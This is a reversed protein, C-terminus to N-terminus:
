YCSLYFSFFEGPNFINGNAEVIAYPIVGSSAVNTGKKHNKDKESRYKKIYRFEFQEDATEKFDVAKMSHLNEKGRRVEYFVLLLAAGWQLVRHLSSHLTTPIKSLYKITYNEDGRMELAEKVNWLLKYIKELTKAPIEEKHDTDTCGKEALKESNVLEGLGVDTDKNEEFYKVFNSDRKRDTLTQKTLGGGEQLNLHDDDNSKENHLM